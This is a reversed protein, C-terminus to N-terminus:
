LSIGVLVPEPVLSIGFKTEVGDRVARALEAIDASQASGRNTLALTHVTSLTAASEPGYIGFGKTFGANEILWAASTKVISPDLTGNSPGTTLAPTPGYVPYTPAGEPLKTGVAVIPNTFFSGASWRNATPHDPTVPQGPAVLSGTAGSTAGLRPRQYADVLMDKGARLELVAQAVAACEARDGLDVGLKRALESYAVPASRTGLRFQFSVELVIYRPSPGWSRGNADVGTMTRKLLSDRYSFKLETLAFMRPRQEARDYVRVSAVVSSIEQGYAGINQVPAAGVSGPIGILAEVGIWEQGIAHRVFEDWNQGAPVTISGGGCSDIQDETVGSRGDQVVIGDFGSDSAVINSGGGIVLLEIGQADAYAIVEILDAETHTVVFQAIPGGVRLTTLDALSVDNRATDLVLPRLPLASSTM